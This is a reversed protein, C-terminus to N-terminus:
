TLRTPPGTDSVSLGMAEEYATLVDNSLRGVRHVSRGQAALWARVDASCYGLRDLRSRSAEARRTMLTAKEVPDDPLEGRRHAEVLAPAIIAWFEAWAEEKTPTGRSEEETPPGRGRRRQVYRTM